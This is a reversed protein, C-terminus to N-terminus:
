SESIRDVFVNDAFKKSVILSTNDFSIVMSQDFEQIEVVNIESSLALGIKSVYQLFAVSNDKVSVLKCRDGKTLSSLTIKPLLEYFGEANPIVAGHPDYKPLGLFKDLETILKKSRIHELQEAVEHVEDWSFKMHQYLFTEWLRHKRVLQIAVQEGKKTLKVKGYKKFAVLKKPKLKKLMSNVSAQSIDLYEALQSSRSEKQDSEIILYFLAKLYDEETKSLVM